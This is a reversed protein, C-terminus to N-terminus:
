LIGGVDIVEGPIAPDDLKGKVEAAAVKAEEITQAAEIRAVLQELEARPDVGVKVAIDFARSVPNWVFGEPNQEAIEVVELEREALVEPPGLVTGQSVLRGTKSEFVAYWQTM